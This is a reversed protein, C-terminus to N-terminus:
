VTSKSQRRETQIMRGNGCRMRDARRPGSVLQRRQGRASRRGGGQRLTAKVEQSLLLSEETCIGAGKWGIKYSSHSSALCTNTRQRPSQSRVAWSKPQNVSHSPSVLMRTGPRQPQTTERADQAQCTDPLSTSSPNSQAWSQLTDTRCSEGAESIQSSALGDTGDLGAEPNEVQPPPLSSSLPGKTVGRM